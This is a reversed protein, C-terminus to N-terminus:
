FSKLPLISWIQFIWSMKERKKESFRGAFDKTLQVLMELPEASALTLETLEDLTCQFYRDGLDKLIDKEDERIDKVLSKLQDSVGEMKKTSLRAFKLNQLYQAMEDYDQKVSLKRLQRILILDNKLADLYLEPGETEGCIEM